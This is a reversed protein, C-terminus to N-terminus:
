ICVDVINYWFGRDYTNSLEAFTSVKDWGDRKLDDSSKQGSIDLEPITRLSWGSRLVQEKNQNLRAQFVEQKKFVLGDLIDDRM